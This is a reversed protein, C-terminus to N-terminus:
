SAAGVQFAEIDWGATNVGAEYASQLFALLTEKPSGSQRVEEYMLLATGGEPEWSATHPRLPQETLGEPEPATYSLLGTGALRPGPGSGSPYSRM